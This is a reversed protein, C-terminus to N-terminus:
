LLSEVKAASNLRAKLISMKSRCYHSMTQISETGLYVGVVVGKDEGYGIKGM